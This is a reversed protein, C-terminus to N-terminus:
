GKNNIWTHFDKALLDKDRDSMLRLQPTGLFLSPVWGAVGMKKEDLFAMFSLAVDKPTPSNVQEKM